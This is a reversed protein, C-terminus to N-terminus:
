HLEDSYRGEVLICLFFICFLGALETIRYLVGPIRDMGRPLVSWLFAFFLDFIDAKGGGRRWFGQTQVAENRGCRRYSIQLLFM